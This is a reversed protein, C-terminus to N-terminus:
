EVELANIDSAENKLIEMYDDIPTNVKLRLPSGQTEADYNFTDVMVHINTYAVGRATNVEIELTQEKTTDEVMIGLRTFVENEYAKRLAVLKDCLYTAETSHVTIKNENTFSDTQFIVEAGLKRSKYANQLSLLASQDACEYVAQTRTAFLNQHISTEIEAIEHAAMEIYPYIPYAQDNIRFIVAESAPKVFSIGNQAHFEYETPLGYVDIGIGCVPLYLGNAYGIKGHKFLTRLFYRKPVDNPLNEVTVANHLAGLFFMRYENEIRRAFIAADQMVQKNAM